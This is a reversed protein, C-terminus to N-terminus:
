RVDRMLLTRLNVLVGERRAARPLLQATVQMSQRVPVILPRLLGANTGKNGELVEALIDKAAEERREIVADHYIQLLQHISSTQNVLWPGVFRHPKGGILITVVVDPHSCSLDVIVITSESTIVGYETRLGETTPSPIQSLEMPPMDPDLDIVWGIDHGVRNRYGPLRPM